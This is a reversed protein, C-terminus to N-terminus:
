IKSQRDRGPPRRVFRLALIALIVLLWALPRVPFSKLSWVWHLAALPAALYILRHLKRWAGAGMRRIAGDTSTLALALLMTFSAMGMFLYPRKLLDRGMQNWLFAMDMSVWALMHLAAYTFCLLGLVRRFRVLNVRALLLLPSVALSAILFYLATRGLRHEIDRVPEVGLRGALTDVVLLALPILGALWVAWIPIRRLWGYM